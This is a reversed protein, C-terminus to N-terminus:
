SGIYRDYLSRARALDESGQLIARGGPFVTVLLDGLQFRLFHRRNALGSVEGGAVSGLQAALQELDIRAGAPPSVQVSNRGCLKVADAGRAGTLYEFNRQGCTPCDAQPGPLGPFNRLSSDWLDIVSMQRQVKDRRGSLIKLAEAAQIAAVVAVIPGIVGATECTPSAEPPPPAPFVCRLCASEGPLIALVMGSAGVCAGYIWPRGGQVAFDNLLYRTAFNDTGDLLLDVDGLLREINDPTLDETHERVSVQSNIRRLKAAAAVAKPTGAAADAEDFLCQRQLNSLEVFDRDVLVLEAVGARVLHDALHTGLAGCGVLGVRAKAIAAQGAEGLGAFRIQRSYRERQAANLDSASTPSSM